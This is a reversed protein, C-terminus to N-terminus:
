AENLINKKYFKSYLEYRYKATEGLVLIFYLLVIGSIVLAINSTCLLLTLGVSFPFLGIQHFWNEKVSRVKYAAEYNLVSKQLEMFKTLTNIKKAVTLHLTVLLLGELGYLVIKSEASHLLYIGITLVIFVVWKKLAGNFVGYLIQDQKTTEM